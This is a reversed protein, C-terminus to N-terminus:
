PKAKPHTVNNEVQTIFTHNGEPQVLVFPLYSREQSGGSPEPSSCGAALVLVLVSGLVTSMATSPAMRFLSLRLM